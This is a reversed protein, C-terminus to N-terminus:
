NELFRAYEERTLQVNKKFVRIVPHDFVSWTEEAEEDAVELKYGIVELKPFSHFKKIQEFGLKGNFLTDYFHSTKPYLHPLRQHNM